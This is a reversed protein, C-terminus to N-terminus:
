DLKNERLEETWCSKMCVPTEEMHKNFKECVGNMETSVVGDSAQKSDASQKGLSSLLIKCRSTDELYRMGHM